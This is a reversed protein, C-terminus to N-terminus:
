PHGDYGYGLRQWKTRIQRRAESVRWKVTGVPLALAAAVADYSYEGSAILLLPHRLKAPLTGILAQLREVRDRDVIQQDQRPGSAPPHRVFAVADAHGAGDTPREGDLDVLRRLWRLMQRRRDLARNWVIALLWTKFAADERFEDLRQHVRLWAEQVVDEADATRGVAALAARLAAAQHRAVLTEFATLDGERARRVLDHDTV